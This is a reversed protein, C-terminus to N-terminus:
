HTIYNLELLHMYENMWEVYFCILAYFVVNWVNFCTKGHNVGQSVDVFIKQNKNNKM